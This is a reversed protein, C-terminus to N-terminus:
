RSLLNLARSVPGTFRMAGSMVILCYCLEDGVVKPHHDDNHDAIAVDGRIYNNGQDEMEGSLILTAEEGEHTHHPMARGPRVRMISVSEGDFGDMVYEHVGPLRFSWRIDSLSKGLVRQIPAPFPSGNEVTIAPAEQAPAADLMALTADLSPAAVDAPSADFVAGALAEYGDGRRRCEPCYTLHAGVLLSMGDSLSGNAYAALHENTPHWKAM